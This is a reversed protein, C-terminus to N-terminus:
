TVTPTAPKCFKATKEILHFYYCYSAQSRGIMKRHSKGM